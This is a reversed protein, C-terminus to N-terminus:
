IFFMGNEIGSHLRYLSEDFSVVSTSSSALSSSSRGSSLQTESHAEHYMRGRYALLDAYYVPPVLSVPKCCRAFTFCLDYILQQLFDSTFGHEDWLVHYHTPKSTGISGYHSCLYFDFEFPHVITTDVVTGPPVNRSRGTQTEPFLRTQHRKQAVILTVSCSFGNAKMERKLDLLEEHLVMEFQGDSVGDRFILLKKPKVGNIKEYSDILQLCLRGFGIIRECRHEQYSVLQIYKTAVGKNISGVMGVISPSLKDMSRPHNVDAGILMVHSDDAFLPLPKSLDVNIGGLKANIKMGLNAMYQDQGKNAMKSLCCQTVFGIKTESVWKIHKYGHDKRTMVCLLLQLNGKGVQRARANVNEMLPLLSEASAIQRMNAGEIFLPEDMRLGLKNCRAILKPIFADNLRDAPREHYSFDLIAWRLLSKGEVVSSRMLNWQCSDTDVTVSIMNGNDAARLKLQPPKIVRGQVRTMNMLVDIGFNKSLDGGCPGGHNDQLMGCITKKRDNPQALSMEKLFAAANYDLDEKPYRQGEVLVCLEIPLYNARGGKGVDLCPLNPNIKLEPYKERFYDLLRVSKPPAQGNPDESPFTIDCARRDTLGAVLYKQKTRRHTVTVKLGKMASQIERRLKQFSGLDFGYIHEKLFELVSIRKRVALVSYDLCLALGQSTPKLSHQFGKSAAIGGGLDYNPDYGPPHFTKGISVMNRRPNEKMVVDMGQLVERPIQLVEGSLYSKLKHLKLENVLNVSFIFSRQRSGEEDSLKVTFQGTPLQVASFINKEGDYATMELPFESNDAFLKDKLLSLTSKSLKAPRGKAFGDEPKVDIDYHRIISEPNFRVPFHNVLIGVTRIKQVGGRDPRRIPLLKETSESLSSGEAIKLAQMKPVIPAVPGAGISSGGSDSGGQVRSAYSVGGGSGRGSGDAQGPSVNRWVSGGQGMGPGYGRVNQQQQPPRYNVPQQQGFQVSQQQPPPRFNVPQQGFQVPQQQQPPPRYNVPQQGFQPQQQQQPPPRSTVPPQRYNGPQQQQPPQSYQGARGRGGGAPPGRGRGREGGGGGGRSGGRGRGGDRNQM